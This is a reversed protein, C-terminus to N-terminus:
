GSVIAQYATIDSPFSSAGGDIRANQVEKRETSFLNIM